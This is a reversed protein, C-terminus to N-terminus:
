HPLVLSLGNEVLLGRDIKHDSSSRGESNFKIFPAYLSRYGGKAIPKYLIHTEDTRSWNLLSSAIIIPM